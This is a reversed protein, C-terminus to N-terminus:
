SYLKDFKVRLMEQEEKISYENRAREMEKVSFTTLWDGDADSWGERLGDSWADMSWPAFLVSSVHVSKLTLTARENKGPHKRRMALYLDYGYSYGDAFSKFKMETKAESVKVFKRAWAKIKEALNTM